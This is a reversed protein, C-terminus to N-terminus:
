GEKPSMTRVMDGTITNVYLVEHKNLRSVTNQIFRASRYNIGSIRKLNREDNDLWFFLHNSQDYVELPVFAPRQTAVILSIDLARAQQLYVRIFTEMGLIKCLWWLEDVAVCWCGDSYMQMMGQSIVERQHNVMQQMKRTRPWLIRRPATEAPINNEWHDLRLYKYKKQLMDLVRDRPKTGIVVVYKRMPLLQMLLTTKGSGTPGILGIHEGARFRFTDRVFTDWEIFPIEQQVAVPLSM